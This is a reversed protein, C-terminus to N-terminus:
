YSSSTIRKGKHNTKMHSRYFKFKYCESMTGSVYIDRGYKNCNLGVFTCLKMSIVTINYLV